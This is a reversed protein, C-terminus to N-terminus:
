EMLEEYTASLRFTRSAGALRREPSAATGGSRERASGPDHGCNDRGSIRAKQAPEETGERAGKRREEARQELGM